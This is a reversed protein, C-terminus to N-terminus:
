YFKNKANEIQTIAELQREFCIELTPLWPATMFGLLRSPDINTKCYYMTSEMNTDCSWNSGTPVQDYGHAELDNYFKV